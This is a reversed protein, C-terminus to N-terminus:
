TTTTTAAVPRRWRPPQLQGRRHTLVLLAIGAILCLVVAVISAEPGFAGGTLLTPGDFHSALVGHAKGGSVAAGFIGGETFNWAAHLGFALWLRRTLILAAALLVGAELAIALTSVITAGPNFAHAVGFLAASLVLAIWTGLSREVIRFLVARAVIEETIAAAVASALARGSGSWDGAFEVTCAGLAWLAVMTACFLSAGLVLGRALEAVAGARALEDVRRREVLRVYAVYLALTGIAHVVVAGLRGLGLATIAIGLVVIPVLAVVIRVVSYQLWRM